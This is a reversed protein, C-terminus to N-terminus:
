ASLIWPPSFAIIPTEPVCKSWSILSQCKEHLQLKPTGSVAMDMDVACIESLVENM